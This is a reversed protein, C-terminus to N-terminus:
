SVATEGGMIIDDAKRARAENSGRDPAEGPLYLMAGRKAPATVIVGQAALERMTSVLDLAPFRRRFADNFGSIVSHIGRTAHPVKGAALAKRRTEERLAPIAKRVYEAPTVNKAKDSAM